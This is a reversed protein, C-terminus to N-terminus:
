LCPKDSETKGSASSGVGVMFTPAGRGHAPLPMSPGRHIAAEVGHGAGASDPHRIDLELALPLRHWCPSAHGLTREGEEGFHPQRPCSPAQLPLGPLSVGSALGEAWQGLAGTVSRQATPKTVSCKAPVKVFSKLSHLSMPFHAASPAQRGFSPRRPERGGAM